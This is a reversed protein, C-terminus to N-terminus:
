HLEESVPTHYKAALDDDLFLSSEVYCVHCAAIDHVRTRISCFALALWRILMV